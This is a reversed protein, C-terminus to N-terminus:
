LLSNPTKDGAGPRGAVGIRHSRLDPESNGHPSNLCGFRWRVTENKGLKVLFMLLGASQRNNAGIM